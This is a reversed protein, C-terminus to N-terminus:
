AHRGGSAAVRARVVQAAGAALAVDADRIMYKAYLFQRLGEPMQCWVRRPRASQLERPEILNSM